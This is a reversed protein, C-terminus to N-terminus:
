KSPEVEVLPPRVGCRTKLWDQMIRMDIEPIRVFECGAAGYERTWLVRAQIMIEQDLGPLLLPFSLVTGVKLGGRTKLGVGGDGINTVVVPFAQGSEDVAKVPVMVAYRVHRRYDQLMRSYAARVSETGNEFNVPKRLVVDVGPINRDDTAVAVVIPKQRVGSKRFDLLLEVAAEAAWDIVILDTSGEELRKTAEAATCCIRTNIAFDRLIPDITCVVAPDHSVLLCEFIMEPTM